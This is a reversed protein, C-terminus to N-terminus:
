YRITVSLFYNIGYGYYYKPPFQNPDRTDFDFRLQEYGGTIINKNNLINNIGASFVLYVARKEIYTKRLRWSYGGYFDVTHQPDFKTQDIISNWQPSKQDISEVAPYTRRIPNFALWMEDFYNATLSLFWFKPSRYTIGFSYANQPTGAVRFNESYVIENNLVQATNDLTITANQRSNYYYRGVATAGNLTLNSTVKAEIGFEGGFHLKGINSLAYNVFNRYTEHYFTLVDFGHQFSTYYGGFRIKLKPANLVYGAEATKITENTLNNQEVDRTRPSIYTNEFYPPRTLYAANAYLYNRGNIKYTIGGKVAYNTFDNITSKGYSNEPFLGSRMHGTRWFKNESIEEAVFFDIHQYRFVTQLWVASKTIDIDYNYGYKDGVKLIRNPNNLDNQAANPNNPFDREAFQNLDVFFEGGLLDTLKEYYNNKQRQYLVGATLNAHDSIRSNLTTNLNLRQTNTTREQLVYLSRHGTVDNGAAGNADHITEVNDRNVDYLNQWDIQRAAENNQLLETIQQRQLSDTQHSPLYQYYDPRPDPANYWDIASISKKGFSFSGASTLTTSNNIKLEHALIFVPQFTKGVSANRKKGNQYGWYPNYYHSGSLDIMEQLAAGQRGNEAPAGFATFSIQQKDNIKKDVGVFYSWGNYFTGPVYGEDAWRRSGSITFAWGKKSIGTSHTFMWRHTYARNSYAYSFSTQKRQKSARVDINTTNGISGFSFTNPRLGFSIDRNHMVDNLGSWLNYPTFGNDISEMPIGNLYTGSLDADYGRIRFRLASFNFTAANYFPDRGATLLSSINPSGTESFDNEDLSITPINDLVNDKIEDIISTDPHLSDKAPIDSLRQAFCFSFFLQFTLILVLKRM